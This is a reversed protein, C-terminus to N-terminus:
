THAQDPLTGTERGQAGFNPVRTDDDLTSLIATVPGAIM